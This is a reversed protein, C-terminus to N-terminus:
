RGGKGSIVVYVTSWLIKVDVWISWNRLYHIDLIVKRRFSDLSTDYGNKVQALGTLGPKSDLRGLYSPIVESLEKILEPREPRPGVLSM